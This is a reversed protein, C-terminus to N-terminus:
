LSVAADYYSAVGCSLSAIPHTHTHSPTPTHRHPDLDTSCRHLISLMPTTVTPSILWSTLSSNCFSPISLFFILYFSFNLAFFSSILNLIYPLPVGSRIQDSGTSWINFRHALIEHVAYGSKTWSLPCMNGPGCCQTNLVSPQMHIAQEAPSFLSDQWVNWPVSDWVTEVVLLVCM